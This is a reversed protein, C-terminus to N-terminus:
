YGAASSCLLSRSVAAIVEAALTIYADSTEDNLDETFTAVATVQLQAEVRQVTTGAVQSETVTIDVCM